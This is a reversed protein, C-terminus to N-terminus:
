VCLYPNQWGSVAGAHIEEFGPDLPSMPEGQAVISKYNKQTSTRIKLIDITPIKLGTKMSFSVEGRPGKIVERQLLQFVSDWDSKGIYPLVNKFAIGAEYGLLGYINPPQGTEKRFLKVFNQNARSEDSTNWLASSYCTLGLNHLDELMDDFVMNECLVLPIENNLGHKKWQELFDRAANGSIIAHVYSPRERRISNFFNDFDVHTVMEGPNPIHIDIEEAGASVVGHRFVSSLHYGAEYVTSVILGKGGFETQAWHGLAYEGQWLQYSSVFVRDNHFRRHPLYEGLDFFLGMGERKSLMPLLEPFSQYSILGSLVPVQDFFVLKKAAEVTTKADGMHTYEQLFQVAGNTALEKGAGFFFGAMLHQAYHPYIGSYPTLFGIKVQHPQAIM